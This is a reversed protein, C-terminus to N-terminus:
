FLTALIQMLLTLRTIISSTRETQTIDNQVSQNKIARVIIGQTTHIIMKNIINKKQTYRLSPYIIHTIKLQSKFIQLM